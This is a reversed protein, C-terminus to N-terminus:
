IKMKLNFIQFINISKNIASKSSTSINDNTNIDNYVSTTNIASNSGQKKLNTTPSEPNQSLSKRPSKIENM